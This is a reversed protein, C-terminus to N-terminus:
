DSLLSYLVVNTSIKLSDERTYGSCQSKGTNELACSLDNPSFVVALRGDIEAGEFKPKTKTESFTGDLKRIRLTVANIKFGFMPNTWIEHNPPISIMPKDDLITTMERRFSKTFEESACISDAFIFGGYKLHQRLATREEPTFSFKSRGHMFIFPHDALSANTPSILKKDIKVELGTTEIKRLVNRWANPADDSGGQHDLKPFVLVRDNLLQRNTEALTPTDGKEKLNTRDTAYAMVNIGIKTCYEVRLKLRQNISPSDLIAPRDLNWYCSLNAPCYVVSTRCCAQLGLLPRERSAVIPYQSNWIPHNPPLPELRSDPFLDLMLLKFERDYRGDNGCGDGQCAEAFLFGGNELYKKLNDRQKQDLGILDKGSMFLVPAEILDNVTSNEATVTQWNLKANWEKELRRTLYHVGNPHLDWDDSGHDYKGIVIPRKGKSLFLLALSTAVLENNEGQGGPTQWYHNLPHQTRLLQKAGDRYWDNAGVFRRGSLRGARELGYLFYLRTRPDARQLLPNARVTYRKALWNFGADVMKKLDDDVCCNAFEGNILKSPEVLNEEAIIVSSIGACTMSGKPDKSGPYYTFGGSREIFCKKWYSLASEWTTKPVKIGTKSAEHLALIAFQSNSSDGQGKRLGYSWAGAVYGSDDTQQAVLWNVDSQVTQRYKKGGPDATTLAMIRLSVVYTSEQPVDILYDLSKLIRPAFNPNNMAEANLLALTCLATTDGTFTLKNWSGDEKQRSMLYQVARTISNNVKAANLPTNDAKQSKSFLSQSPREQVVTPLLMPRELVSKINTSQGSDKAAAPLGDQSKSSNQCLGSWSTLIILFLLIRIQVSRM